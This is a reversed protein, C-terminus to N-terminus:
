PDARDSPYDRGVYRLVQATGHVAPQGYVAWATTWVSEPIALDPRAKRVLDRFLGRFRQSLAQVPVLSPRAPRGGSPGIPLSGAPQSWAIAM